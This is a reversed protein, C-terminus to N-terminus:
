NTPPIEAIVYWSLLMVEPEDDLPLASPLLFSATLVGLLLTSSLTPPVIPPPMTSLYNALRDSVHGRDNKVRWSPRRRRRRRQHCFSCYVVHRHWCSLALLRSPATHPLTSHPRTCPARAEVVLLWALGCYWSWVCAACVDDDGVSGTARRRRSFIVGAGAPRTGPQPCRCYQWRDCCLLTSGTCCASQGAAYLVTCVTIYTAGTSSVCAVLQTAQRHRIIHM